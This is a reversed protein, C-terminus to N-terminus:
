HILKKPLAYGMKVKHRSFVVPHGGFYLIVKLVTPKARFVNFDPHKRRHQFVNKLTLARTPNPNPSPNSNTNPNTNPRSDQCARGSLNKPLACTCVPWWVGLDYRRGDQGHPVHRTSHQSKESMSRSFITGEMCFLQQKPRM